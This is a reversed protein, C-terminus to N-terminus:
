GFARKQHRVLLVAGTEDELAQVASTIASQSIGIAHAARSVSEAEAAAIFSRFQRLTLVEPGGRGARGRSGSELPGERAAGAAPAARDDPRPPPRTLHATM